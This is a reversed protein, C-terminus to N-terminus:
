LDFIVKAEWHGDKEVVEIQHFTVAKIECLVEHLDTNFPVTALTADLHLPSISDIEIQVVVEKEGHFLYLIEGLWHVMLEAPDESELSLRISNLKEAARSNVMIQMMALAARKFLDQINSGQVMIGLDATHDLITYGSKNLGM